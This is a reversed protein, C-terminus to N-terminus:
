RYKTHFENNKAVATCRRHKSKILSQCRKLRISYWAKQIDTWLINFNTANSRDLRKEVDHWLNDIPNLEPSQAPWPVVSGGGHKITKTTYRPDFETNINRRVYSKGDSGFRNFKSEDPLLVNNELHAKAFNVRNIRNKKKKVSTIHGFLNNELLRNKITSISINLGLQQQIKERM